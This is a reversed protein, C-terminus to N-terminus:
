PVEVAAGRHGRGVNIVLAPVQIMMQDENSDEDDGPTKLLSM